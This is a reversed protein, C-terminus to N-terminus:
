EGAVVPLSEAEDLITGASDALLIRYTYKTRAVVDLRDSHVLTTGDCDRRIKEGYSWAPARVVYCHSLGALRPLTAVLLIVPQEATGTNRALLTFGEAKTEEASTPGTPPPPEPTGPRLVGAPSVSGGPVVDESPSPLRGPRSFIVVLALVAVLAAAAFGPLLRRYAPAVPESPPESPPVDAEGADIEITKLQEADLRSGGVGVSEFRKATQQHVDSAATVSEISIPSPIEGERLFHLTKKLVPLLEACSDYREDASKKMCRHVVQALEPPCDRWVEGLPEPEVHHIRHIFDGMSETKFPNLWTLLEYAIVGFSFIDTRHDVTRMGTIQEPATYGVTGFNEGVLTLTSDTSDKALGFDMIKISHDHLVRINRPSLDRHILGRDHVFVLGQAIEMLYRLRLSAPLVDRDQIKKELDVGSLFEEVLYHLGAAADFGYDYVLAVNRHKLQSVVRAERRFRQLQGEDGTTCIKIAVNRDLEVDYGEYVTGFGGSGAARIVHYKGIRERM